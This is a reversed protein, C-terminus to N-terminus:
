RRKRERYAQAAAVFSPAWGPSALANVHLYGAVVTHACAGDRGEAIGNGRGLNCSLCLDPDLNVAQSHHHEHGVLVTGPSLWACPEEIVGQAYGHATQRDHMVTDLGLAGVMEFVADGCRLTRGLYMLGGCEAFIPLGAEARSRISRRLAENAELEAAFEEPFGGGIYLGDVEEPLAEDGLSQVFRLQAGARELAALNEPYYFSFVQDRMVAITTRSQEPPVATTACLQEPTAAAHTGQDRMVAITACPQEPPVASTACPQGPAAPAHMERACDPASAAGPRGREGVAGAGGGFGEGALPEAARAIALVADLDVSAEIVEAIGDLVRDREASEASTVLGLHRDPVTMLADKPVAGVVPIGCYREIAETVLDRQRKGRVKNLIVGAITVAPDFTQCGLVLAAATRTMRTVDVVLVVPTATECAIKASSGSGEVDLGDFLGMAAEIVGVDSGCACEFVVERIQAPSMFFLDLNRSVGGVAAAHWGPDIYDPGKKFPQVLLGRRRLARLLGLTIVTKGSRGHPAAIMIRPIAASSAKEDGRM